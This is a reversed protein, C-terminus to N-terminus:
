RVGFSYSYGLTGTFETFAQASTEGKSKRNVVVTSLNLNHKKKLTISANIRGNLISNILDSGQYSNNYATSFTTRLKKDFFSKSVAATPGLTKGTPGITENLTTNFSVSV